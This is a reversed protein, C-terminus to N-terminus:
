FLKKLSGLVDGVKDVSIKGKVGVIIQNVVDDPLDIGIVKEVVKVPEKQFQDFLTKDKQVTDVIKGIQAKIDM